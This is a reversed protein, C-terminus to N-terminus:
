LQYSVFVMINRPLINTTFKSVSFDSVQFSSFYQNNLLNRGVIRCELKKKPSTYSLHFDLLWNDSSSKLNQRHYDSTLFTKINNNVKVILKSSNQVSKNVVNSAGINESISTNLSLTNEFNIAGGFISKYFFESSVVKGRNSRLNSSNLFNYYENVSYTISAKFTSRLAPFYKTTMFYADIGETRINKYSYKTYTISDTISYVPLYDGENKQYSIGLSNDFQNFLDNHSYNLNVEQTKFLDLSPLNSVVSRYSEVITNSFIYKEVRPKKIIFFSAGVNSINSLVFVARLNPEFILNSKSTEIQSLENFLRQKLYTLTYSTALKWKDFRFNINGNQAWTNKDYKTDNPNLIGKSLISDHRVNAIHHNAEVMKRLSLSYVGSKNVGFLTAQLYTHTKQMNSLQMDKEFQNGEYISPSLVFEQNTSSYSNFITVQLAKKEAVRQTFLVNNKLFINATSLGNQYTPIFNSIASKKSDIDEKTISTNCEFLAKPSVNNRLYLDAKYTKPQKTSSIIDKYFVTNPGLYYQNEFSQNNKIEDKLYYLNAKLSMKPNIKYIGNYNGFFQSNLNARDDNLFLSFNSDPIFKEAWFRRDKIQELSQNNGFYDIPSKNQGDNNYSLTTFFRHLSQLGILNANVDILKKDPKLVGIGIEGLGSLSLKSKILKVNLVVREEKELGKLVYNDAYNEIAQVEQIIDASINKTGLTYNAGFLNDGELLVTEIPKGKFKIQGTKENVDIGPLKKLVDQLKRETGDKFSAPNYTTTDNQVIVPRKAAVIVTDLQRDDFQELVFLLTDNQSHIDRIQTLDVYGSATIVFRVNDYKFTPAYALYGQRIIKYDLLKAKEDPTYIRLYAFDISQHKKDSIKIVFSQAFSCVTCLFFHLLIVVSLYKSM